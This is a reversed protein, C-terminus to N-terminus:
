IHFFTYLDVINEQFMHFQDVEHKENYLKHSAKASLWNSMFKLCFRIQFRMQNTPSEAADQM